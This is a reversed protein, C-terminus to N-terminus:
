RGVRTGAALGRRKSPPNPFTSKQKEWWKEPRGPQPPPSDTGADWWPEQPGTGITNFQELSLLANSTEPISYNPTLLETPLSLLGIDCHSIAGGTGGPDWPMPISSPSDQSVLSCDLLMAKPLSLDGAKDGIAQIHPAACHSPVKSGLPINSGLATEVPAATDSLSLQAFQREM